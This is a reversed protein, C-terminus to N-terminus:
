KICIYTYQNYKEQLVRQHHDCFSGYCVPSTYHAASNYIQMQQNVLCTCVNTLATM